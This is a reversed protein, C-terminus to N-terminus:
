RGEECSVEAAYWVTAGDVLEVRVTEGAVVSPVPESVLQFSKGAEMTTYAVTANRCLAYLDLPRESTGAVKGEVHIRTGGEGTATWARMGRLYAPCRIEMAVEGWLGGGPDPSEVLVVLENRPKLLSTIEFEFPGGGEHRGLPQGNLTVEAAHDAGAFTLWVREYADIRGPYGFRRVCRVRGAFDAWGAEAWRCPMKVRGAAPLPTGAFSAVPECQWPGRLRIRHPYM